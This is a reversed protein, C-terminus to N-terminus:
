DGGEEDEEEDEWPRPLPPPHGRDGETALSEIIMSKHDYRYLHEIM